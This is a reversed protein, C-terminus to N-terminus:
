NREKAMNVVINRGMFQSQNLSEIASDAHSAQSMEVFGFGRARGSEKDRVVNATKVEGHASFLSELDSNETEFSLNGVYIKTNM